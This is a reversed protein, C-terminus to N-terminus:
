VGYDMSVNRWSWDAAWCSPNNKWTRATEAETIVDRERVVALIPRRSTIHSLDWGSFRSLSKIGTAWRSLQKQCITIYNCIAVILPRADQWETQKQLSRPPVKRVFCMALCFLFDFGSLIFIPFKQMNKRRSLLPLTFVVINTINRNSHYVGQGQYCLLFSKNASKIGSLNSDMM